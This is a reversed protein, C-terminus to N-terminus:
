YKYTFQPVVNRMTISLMPLGLFDSLQGTLKGSSSQPPRSRSIGTAGQGTSVDTFAQQSTNPNIPSNSKRQNINQPSKVKAQIRLAEINTYLANMCGLLENTVGREQLTKLPHPEYFDHARPCNCPGRLYKECIHLRKCNEGDKCRGYPGVGNNYSYCVQNFLFCLVESNTLKLHYCIITHM